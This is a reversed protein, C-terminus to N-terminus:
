PSTGSPAAVADSAAPAIAPPASGDGLVRRPLRDFYRKLVGDYRPSVTRDQVSRRASAAARELRAEPSTASASGPIPRGGPGLWEAVVQDRPNVEPESGPKPRADLPETRWRPESANTLPQQRTGSPRPPQGMSDNEAGNGQGSQGSAQNALPPSSPTAPDTPDSNPEDANRNRALERAAEELRKRQDPSARRLLEEARKRLQESAQRDRALREPTKSLRELREALRDVADDPLQDPLGAPPQDASPAPSERSSQDSAAARGDVSPSNQDPTANPTPQSQRTPNAETPSPSSSTPGSSETPPRTSSAPTKSPASDPQPQPEASNTSSSPQPSAQRTGGQQGQREGRREGQQEPQQEGQPNGQQQREQQREQPQQETGGERQSPQSQSSSPNTRPNRDQDSDSQDGRGQETRSQEGRPNDKRDSAEPKGQERAPTQPQANEGNNRNRLREAAKRFDDALDKRPNPKPQSDRATDPTTSNPASPEPTTAPKAASPSRSAPDPSPQTSPPTQNPQASPPSQSAQSEDGSEPSATDPLDTEPRPQTASDAAIGDQSQDEAKAKNLQDLEQAIQELRAATESSDEKGRTQDNRDISRLLEAARDFRGDALAKALQQPPTPSIATGPTNADTAASEDANGAASGGAVEDVDAGAAGTALGSAGSAIADRTSKFERASQRTDADALNALETLLAASEGAAARPEATGSSLEAEIEALRVLAEPQVSPLSVDDPTRDGSRAARASERAQAIQSALDAQAARVTRERVRAAGVGALDLGPVFIAVAIAVLALMAPSQWGRSHEARISTARRVAAVTPLSQPLSRAAADFPSSSTPLTSLEAAVALRGELALARDLRWAAERESPAHRLGQVVAFLASVAAALPVIWWLGKSGASVLREAIVLAAAIIAVPLAARQWSRVILAMAFRRRALQVIRSVHNM